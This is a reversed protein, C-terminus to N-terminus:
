SSLRKSKYNLYRGIIFSHNNNVKIAFSIIPRQTSVNQIWIIKCILKLNMREDKDDDEDDSADEVNGVDDDRLTGYVFLSLIEDEVPM